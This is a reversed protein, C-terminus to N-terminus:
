LPSPLTYSTLDGEDEDSSYPTNPDEVEPDSEGGALMKEFGYQEVLNAMAGKATDLTDLKRFSRRFNKEASLPKPCSSILHDPRKFNYCLRKGFFKRSSCSLNRHLESRPKVAYKNQGAFLVSPNAEPKVVTGPLDSPM